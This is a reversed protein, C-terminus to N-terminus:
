DVTIKMTKSEKVVEKKPLVLTLVGNKLNATVKEKDVNSNKLVWAKVVSSTLAKKIKKEATVTLVDDNISVDVEEKEFGPLEVLVTFNDKNDEVSTRSNYYGLCSDTPFVFSDFPKFIDLFM